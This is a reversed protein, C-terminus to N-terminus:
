GADYSAGAAERLDEQLQSYVFDTEFEPFSDIVSACLAWAATLDGVARTIYEERSDAGILPGRGSLWAPLRLAPGFLEGAAGEAGNLQPTSAEVKRLDGVELGACVQSVEEPVAPEASEEGTSCGALLLAAAAAGWSKM